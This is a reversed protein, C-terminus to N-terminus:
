SARSLRRETILRSLMRFYRDSQRSQSKGLNFQLVSQPTV